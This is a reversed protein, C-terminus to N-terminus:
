VFVEEWNGDFERSIVEALGLFPPQRLCAGSHGVGNEKSVPPLLTEKEVPCRIRCVAITMSAAFSGLDVCETSIGMITDVLGVGVAAPRGILM